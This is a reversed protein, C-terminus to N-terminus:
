ILPLRPSHSPPVCSVPIMNWFPKLTPFHALIILHRSQHVASSGKLSKTHYRHKAFGHCISHNTRENEEIAMRYRGLDGLCEIWTDKIVPVTGYLLAMMSYTTYISALKHYQSCFGTQRSVRLFPHIGHKWMSAPMTYRCALSRLTSSAYPHQLALFFDHHEDLLRKHLAVLKNWQICDHRFDESSGYGAM